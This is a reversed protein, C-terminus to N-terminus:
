NPHLSNRVFKGLNNLVRQWLLWENARLFSASDWRDRLETASVHRQQHVELVLDLFLRSRATPSFNEEWVARAKRGLARAEIQRTAAIRPIEKIDREALRICCSDWDINPIPIWDDSIIIPCRGMSMVEFMRYTAPSWGRPCLVFHSKLIDDAYARKQYLSHHHFATDDEVIHGSPDNQLLDFLESRVPATRKNGRFSFLYQPRVETAKDQHVLTEENIDYPYPCARHLDPRYNRPNLSTYCGPLFGRGLDDWNIAVIKDLYERVFPCQDLLTVYSRFKTSWAEFIVIIDAISAEDVFAIDSRDSNNRILDRAPTDFRSVIPSTGFLPVFVKIPSLEM